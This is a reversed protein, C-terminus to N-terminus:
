LRWGDWCALYDGGGDGSVRVLSPPRVPSSSFELLIPLFLLVDVFYDVLQQGPAKVPKAWYSRSLLFPTRPAMVRPTYSKALLFCFFFFFYFIFCGCAHMCLATTPKKAQHGHTCARERM